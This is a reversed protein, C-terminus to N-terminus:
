KELQRALERAIIEVAANVSRLEALIKREGAGLQRIAKMVRQREAALQRMSPRVIISEINRSYKSKTM